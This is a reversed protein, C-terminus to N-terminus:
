GAVVLDGGLDGGWRVKTLPLMLGDERRQMTVGWPLKGGAARARHEALPAWGDAGGAGAGGGDMRENGAGGGGGRRVAPRSHKAVAWFGTEPDAATPPQPPRPPDLAESLDDFLDESETPPTQLGATGAHLGAAQQMRLQQQQQQQQQQINEQWSSVAFEPAQLGFRRARALLQTAAERDRPDRAAGAAAADAPPADWPFQQTSAAPPAGQQPADMSAVSAGAGAGAGAGPHQQQQQQAWPPQAGPPRPATAAYHTWLAEAGAPLFELEWPQLPWGREIIHPNLVGVAKQLAIAFEIGSQRDAFPDGAAGAEAAAARLPALVAAEVAAMEDAAAAAATEAPALSPATYVADNALRLIDQRVLHWGGLQDRWIGVDPRWDVM